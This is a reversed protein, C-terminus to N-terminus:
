KICGGSYSFRGGCADCQSRFENQRNLCSSSNRSQPPNSECTSYYTPESVTCSEGGLLGLAQAGYFAAGTAALGGLILGYGGGNKVPVPTPTAVEPLGEANVAAAPPVASADLRPQGRMPSTCQQMATMTDTSISLASKMYEDIMTRAALVRDRVATMGANETVGDFWEQAQGKLQERVTKVCGGGGTLCVYATELQDRYESLKDWQAKLADYHQTYDKFIENHIFGINQQDAKAVFENTRQNFAEVIQGCNQQQASRAIPVASFPTTITLIGSIIAAVTPSKLRM